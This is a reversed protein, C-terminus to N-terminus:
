WKSTIKQLLQEKFALCTLLLTNASITAISAITMFRVSAHSVFVLSGGKVFFKTPDRGVYIEVLFQVSLFRGTLKHRTPNTTYM